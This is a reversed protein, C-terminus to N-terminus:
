LQANGFNKTMLDTAEGRPMTIRASVVQGNLSVQVRQLLTITTPNKQTLKAALLMGNLQAALTSAGVQGPSVGSIVLTATAPTVELTMSMSNLYSLPALAHQAGLERLMNIATDNVAASPSPETIRIEDISGDPAVKFAASIKVNTTNLDLEHKQHASWINQVHERLPYINIRGYKGTVVQAAKQEAEARAQAEAEAREAEEKEQKARETALEAERRQRRAKALREEQIKRLQAIEELTKTKAPVFYGPPYSLKQRYKDLMIIHYLNKSEVDVFDLGSFERQIGHYAMWGLFGFHLVVSLVIGSVFRWPFRREQPMYQDLATIRIGM